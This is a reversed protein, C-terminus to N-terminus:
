ATKGAMVFDIIVRPVSHSGGCASFHTPLSLSKLCGKPTFMAKEQVPVM